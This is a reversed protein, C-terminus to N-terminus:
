DQAKSPTKPTVAIQGAELAVEIRDAWEEGGKEVNGRVMGYADTLHSSLQVVSLLLAEVDYQQPSPNQCGYLITGAPINEIEWAGLSEIQVYIPLGDSGLPGHVVKFLGQSPKAQEVNVQAGSSASYTVNSEKLVSVREMGAPAVSASYERAAIWLDRADSVKANDNGIRLNDVMAQFAAEEQGAFVNGM